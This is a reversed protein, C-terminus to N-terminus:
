GQMFLDMKTEFSCTHTYYLNFGRQKINDWAPLLSRSKTISTNSSNTPWVHATTFSSQTFPVFSIGHIGSAFPWLTFIDRISFRGSWIHSTCTKPVCPSHSNILSTWKYDYQSENNYTGSCYALAGTYRSVCQVTRYVMCMKPLVTNAGGKHFLVSLRTWVLNRIECSIITMECRRKSWRRHDEDPVTDESSALQRATFISLLYLENM